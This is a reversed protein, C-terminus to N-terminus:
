APKVLLFLITLFTFNNEIRIRKVMMTEQKQETEELARGGLIRVISAKEDCRVGAEMGLLM